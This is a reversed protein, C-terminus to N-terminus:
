GLSPLLMPRLNQGQAELFQKCTEEITREIPLYEFDPISKSKSNDYFYSKELHAMSNRTVIPNSGTVLSRLWEGRWIMGRLFANLPKTPAKVNLHNTIKTFISRYSINEASLIYRESKIESNMLQVMFRVVDRVDVYASSGKPYYGIGPALKTFISASGEKWFGSGLIVAPNVIAAQLGEAIGRWVHMEARYKSVAYPSNLESEVWKNKENIQGGDKVRGIAAISSVYILKEIGQHLAADVLNQTGIENVENMLATDKKSFSIKAACHYIQGVGEMADELSFIDMLDGEVWNIRKQIGAVLDMPSNSRKLGSINTFGEDLLPRLLYAGAFGTAGAVLIKNSKSM